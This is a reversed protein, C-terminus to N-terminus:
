GVDNQQLYEMDITFYDYRSDFLEHKLRNLSIPNFDLTIDTKALIAAELRRECDIRRSRDHDSLSSAYTSFLYDLRKTLPVLTTGQLRWDAYHSIQVEISADLYAPEKTGGIHALHYNLFPFSHGALIRTVDIEHTAKGFVPIDTQLDSFLFQLSDHLRHLAGLRQRKADDLPTFAYRDPDLERITAAKGLDHLLSCAFLLDLNVSPRHNTLRLGIYYAVTAVAVCHREINDLISFRQL